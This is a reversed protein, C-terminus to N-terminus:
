TRNKSYLSVTLGFQHLTPYTNMWAFDCVKPLFYIRRGGFFLLLLFVFFCCCVFVFVFLLLVAVVVFLCFLFCCCVFLCCCFVCVDTSFFSSTCVCARVCDTM